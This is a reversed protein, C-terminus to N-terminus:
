MLDHFYWCIYNVAPLDVSGVAVQGLNGAYCAYMNHGYVPDKGVSTDVRVEKFDHRLEVGFALFKQALILVLM